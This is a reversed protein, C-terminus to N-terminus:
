NIKKMIEGFEEDSYFDIVISGGNVRRRLSVKAGFFEQLRALRESDRPNVKIRMKETGGMDLITDTTKAVTLKNDVIKKFLALQKSPELSYLIKVHGESIVGDVLARQVEPLLKLFSITNAIVSRPKGVRKAVEEQSLNFEDILRRYVVALELPNLDARQINEVLAMELKAQEGVRRIIAPVQKLGALKAARWRREGAILEYEGGSPSVILSQLIGHEQISDALEQLATQVFDRRPQGPNVKILDINLQQTLRSDGVAGVEPAVQAGTEKNVKQPILSGLGRGLAAM